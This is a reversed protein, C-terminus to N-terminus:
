DIQYYYQGQASGIRVGYLETLINRDLIEQPTGSAIIKGGDMVAIQDSLKLALLIDHLVLLLTKGQKLLDRTLHVFNLQQGLDLYTTPEDMLIVPSQQALIMALYVRQRMGGSLENVPVHEWDSVDMEEMAKQAIELDRNTYRRPYSLHPFRGHLVLRGVTMDPPYKNQPLYATQGALETQKMTSIERGSIFIEGRRAPLAGIMTKLLTSKGSGNAGVITTVTGEKVLLDVGQLVDRKGYGAYVHKVEIM